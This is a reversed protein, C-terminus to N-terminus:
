LIVEENVLRDNRSFPAMVNTSQRDHSKNLRSTNVCVATNRDAVVFSWTTGSRKSEKLKILKSLPSVQEAGGLRLAPYWDLGVIDDFWKGYAVLLGMRGVTKCQLEYM